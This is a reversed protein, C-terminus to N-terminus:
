PAWLRSGPAPSGPCAGLNRLVNVPPILAELEWHGWYVLTQLIQDRRLDSCKQRPSMLCPSASM